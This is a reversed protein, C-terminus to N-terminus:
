SHGWLNSILLLTSNRWTRIRRTTSHHPCPAHHQFTECHSVPLNLAKLNMIRAFKERVLFWAFINLVYDTILRPSPSRVVSGCHTAWSILVRPRPQPFTAARGLLAELSQCRHYLPRLSRMCLAEAPAKAVAEKHNKHGGMATVRSM